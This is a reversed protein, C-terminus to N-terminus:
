RARAPIVPALAAGLEASFRRAGDDDLHVGDGFDEDTVSRPASFDLFADGARALESALWTRYRAAEPRDLVEARYSSSMPVEVVVLRAGSRRVEDRLMEFWPSMQWKGDFARLSTTAKEAFAGRLAQMDSVLGFRNHAEAHGDPVLRAQLTAVKIWVLSAYTALANTRALSFRLARDIQDFPLEPYFVKV